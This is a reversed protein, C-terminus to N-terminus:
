IKIIRQTSKKINRVRRQVQTVRTLLFDRSANNSFVVNFTLFVKGLSPYKKEIIGVRRKENEPM